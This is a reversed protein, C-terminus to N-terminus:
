FDMLQQILARYAGQDVHGICARVSSLTSTFAPGNDQGTIQRDCTLYPFIKRLLDLTQHVAWVSTYPGFYRAGDRVM